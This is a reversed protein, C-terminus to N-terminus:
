AARRECNGVHAVPKNLTACPKRRNNAQQEPTAWRVNGSEYHGDNDKRDLTMGNPRPGLESFFQGFSTFLFKIGRGGYCAYHEARPSTCRRKANHYAAYEPTHWAGHKPLRGISHHGRIFRIPQGKVHGYRPDSRKAIPAPLGCGCECLKQM